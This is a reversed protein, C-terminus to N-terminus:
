IDNLDVVTFYIYVKGATYETLLPSTGGSTTFRAFVTETEGVQDASGSPNAAISKWQYDVETGQLEQSAGYATASSSNGITMALGTGNSSAFDTVLRGATRTVFQGATLSALTIDQSTDGDTLDSYTITAKHTFGSAIQEQYPLPQVTM